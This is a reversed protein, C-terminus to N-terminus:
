IINQSIQATALCLDVIVEYHAGVPCSVAMGMCMSSTSMHLHVLRSATLSSSNATMTALRRCGRLRLSMRGALVM